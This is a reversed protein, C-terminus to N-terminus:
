LSAAIPRIQGRAQSSGYAMPPARFFVLFFFFPTEVPNIKQLENNTPPFIMGTVSEDISSSPIQARVGLIESKIFEIFMFKVRESM